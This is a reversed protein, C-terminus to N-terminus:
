KARPNRMQVLIKKADAILENQDLLLKFKAVNELLDLHNVSAANERRRKKSEQDEHALWDRFASRLEADAFVEDFEPAIKPLEPASSSKTAVKAFDHKSGRLKNGSRKSRSRTLRPSVSSVEGLQLVMSDFAANLDLQGGLSVPVKDRDFYASLQSQKVLMLRDVLGNSMMPKIITLVKNFWNPPNVICFLECKIPFRANVTQMFNYAYTVSFNKMTWNTMNAVLAFGNKSANGRKSLADIFYILNYLLDDLNDRNPFFKAPEMYIVDLDLKSRSRPFIFLIRSELISRADSLTLKRDRSITPLWADLYRLLKLAKKLKFNKFHLALYLMRDEAESNDYKLRLQEILERKRSSLRLIERDWQLSRSRFIPATNEEDKFFRHIQEMTPRQEARQCKSIIEKIQLCILVRVL